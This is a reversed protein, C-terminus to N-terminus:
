EYRLAEAPYIRAAQRAPIYTTALSAAYAAAVILGIQLWPVAMSVAPNSAALSEVLNRALGLGLLVGLTTGLLAVFSSELLFSARIMGRQFGIARLMGIQQRREVVSRFAIVGLAAIGVILGLAMFGQLLTNMGTDIAQGADFVQQAEKVDLGNRLFIRGLALATAHVDAGPATRFVYTTPLASLYTSIMAPPVGAATLTREGTYIGATLAQLNDANRDLVGIVALTMVTGTYADRVAIQVPKFTTDEYHFGTITFGQPGFGGNGNKRPVLTDDVVAYGPNTRLTQWVAQDSGYGAARSHLTFQTSDLYANDAINLMYPQWRQDQQSPQRVGIGVQTLGGVAVVSKLSPNAAVQQQVNSIPTSPNAAGYIQYNGDDRPLVLSGATSRILVSMVMLTFIVLSFMGLTLGTRFKQQMPYTVATKLIPALSGRGGAVRLLAGLILDSNYMVTWVAGVVLMIGSVFFMEIGGSLHPVGVRKLADFPLLWYAVLGIGALSYGIRNRVADRVKCLALIWRLSLAAGILLLSLGISFPAAGKSALGISALLYGIPLLLVGRRIFVGWGTVAHWLAACLAGAAGAVRGRRLRRGARALDLLPRRFAAGISRDVGIDEPLDRIAAVVNLRSVRWSSFAVTLFTVLAGLCFSVVLSRPEIHSQLSFDVAGLLAAIIQVMGLGVGIGLAVGVLAAGLDYVYGEFLFQQILQRRRTGIARAMGMEARREAALMMFILFILAVGSAISFLGFVVFITTFESGYQDADNLATQKLPQVQYASIAALADNLPAALAPATITKLADSVQPNSLLGTLQASQGPLAVQRQLKQLKGKVGANAPDVILAALAASGAQTHLLSQVAAVQRPNALLSRVRATV